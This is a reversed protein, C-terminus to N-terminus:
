THLLSPGVHLLHEKMHMGSWGQHSYEFCLSPIRLVHWSQSDEQIWLFSTGAGSLLLEHGGAVVTVVM